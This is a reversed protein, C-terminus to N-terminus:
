ASVGSPGSSPGSVSAAGNVVKMVRALAAQTEHLRITSYWERMGDNDTVHGLMKKSVLPDNDALRHLDDNTRRLGHGTFRGEVSAAKACAKVAKRHSSRHKLTGTMSPFMWGEALGPAQEKVMARRHEELIAMLEPVVPIQKPAKKKRSVPGVRGNVQKRAVRIVKVGVVEVIDDWRLASVHCFRLGTLVMTSLFAYQRPYHERAHALFITVQEPTLANPGDREEEEPFRIGLTPDRLLNLDQVADRVMARLVQFWGRKVTVVKYKRTKANVWAQVDDRTVADFFTQGLAPLIHDELAYAYREATVEDLNPTRLEIWSRAYEGVRVRAPKVTVVQLETRLAGQATRADELTGCIRKKGKMRGTKLDVV